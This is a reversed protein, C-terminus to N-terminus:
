SGFRFMDLKSRLPAAAESDVGILPEKPTRISSVAARIAYDEKAPFSIRRKKHQREADDEHVDESGDIGQPISRRNRLLPESKRPVRIPFTKRKETPSPSRSGDESNLVIPKLPDASRERNPKSSKPLDVRRQAIPSLQTERRVFTRKTSTYSAGLSFRAKWGQAVTQLRRNEEAKWQDEETGNEDLESEAVADFDSEPASDGLPSTLYLGQSDVGKGKRRLSHDTDLVGSSGEQSNGPSPVSGEFSSFIAGLDVILTPKNRPTGAIETKTPSPTTCVLLTSPKSPPASVAPNIPREVSPLPEKSRPNIVLPQASGNIARSVIPSSFVEEADGWGDEEDAFGASLVSEKKRALNRGYDPSPIFGPSSVRIDDDSTPSPSQYGSEQEVGDLEFEIELYEEGDVQVVLTGASIDGKSELADDAAPLPADKAPLTVNHSKAAKTTFFRSTSASVKTLGSTKTAEEKQQLRNAQQREMEGSLSRRGSGTTKCASGSPGASVSSSQVPFNEKSKILPASKPAMFRDMPGQKAVAKIPGAAAAPNGSKKAQPKFGPNIDKIPEQSLPCLDGVAILQALDAPIDPGVFRDKEETWDDPAQGALHVLQKTSPDYVRQFLFALEALLFTELYGKPIKIAGNELAIFKLTRELSKYKRLLKNATRVGIGKLGELYDCGSLMAMHRFETDTWLSLNIDKVQSFRSRSIHTLTYTSADLKFYVNQCGFVLLDSDETLIGDVIGSRELFALQADAEYPAVVYQVSEARLAKILQYAHRPSVDVCKVYLERAEAHRGESALQRAKAQSEERRKRREVETGQKAPLPGGDFVIYPEIGHHRMLRIRHMAYDVYRTTPKGTVLETACGYAGKHLWVYGDVALTKGSLESLHKQQQISKLLPLLGSIGM